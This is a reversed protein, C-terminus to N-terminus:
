QEVRRLCLRVVPAGAWREALVIEQGFRWVFHEPLAQGEAFSGNKDLALNSVTAGRQDIQGILLHERSVGENAEPVVYDQASGRGISFPLKLVDRKPNGSADVIAIVALPAKKSVVVSAVALSAAAVIPTGGEPAVPTATYAPVIPTGLTAPAQASMSVSIEPYRDSGQGRPNRGFGIRAGDALPVRVSRTLRSGDIWTGNTSHDELWLTNDVCHLTCHTASVYYGSVEVDARASSGLLAPYANIETAGAASKADAILLKLRPGSSRAPLAPAAMAAAEASAPVPAVKEEPPRTEWRGHLTVRYAPTLAQNLEEEFSDSEALDAVAFERDLGLFQDVMVHKRVAPGLLKKVWEVRAEPSFERLFQALLDRGQADASIEIYHLVFQENFGIELHSVLDRRLFLNIRREVADKVPAYRTTTPMVAADSAADGYDAEAVAIDGREFASKLQHWAGDIKSNLWSM